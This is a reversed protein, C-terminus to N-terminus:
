KPRRPHPTGRPTGGRRRRHVAMGIRGQPQTSTGTPVQRVCVKKPPSACITCGTPCLQILLASPPLPGSDLPDHLLFPCTSKERWSNRQKGIHFRPGPVWAFHSPRGGVLEDKSTKPASPHCPRRSAKTDSAPPPPPPIPTWPPLGGGGTTTLREFVDRPAQSVPIVCSMWSCLSSIKAM